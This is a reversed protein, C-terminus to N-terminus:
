ISGLLPVHCIFLLYIILASGIGIVVVFFGFLIIKNSLLAFCSLCPLVIVIM